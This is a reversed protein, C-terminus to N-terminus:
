SCTPTTGNCARMWKAPEFPRASDSAILPSVSDCPAIAGIPLAKAMRHIRRNSSTTTRVPSHVITVLRRAYRDRLTTPRTGLMPAGLHFVTDIEYENLSRLLTPYDELDGRVVNVRSVLGSRVLRSRPASDRILCVVDAERELLEEVLWSGLLGTAGTVFVSRNHWFTM